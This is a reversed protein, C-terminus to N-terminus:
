AREDKACIMMLSEGSRWPFYGFLAMPIWNLFSFPPVKLIPIGTLGTTGQGLVRFGAKVAAGIWEAPPRLSVHDHRIGQWKDKLLRAGIGAPNPTTVLLIGGPKLVRRAEDFFRDPSGIHEVVQFASVLDLVGSRIPIEIADSRVPVAGPAEVAASRACDPHIDSGIVTSEPFWGRLRALFFGPGSGLDLLIRRDRRRFGAKRILKRRWVRYAAATMLRRVARKGPSRPLYESGAPAPMM